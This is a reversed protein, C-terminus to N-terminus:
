HRGDVVKNEIGTGGMVTGTVTPLAHRPGVKAGDLSQATTRSTQLRADAVSAFALSAAFARRLSNLHTV